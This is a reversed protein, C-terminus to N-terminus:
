RISNEKLKKLKLTDQQPDQKIPYITTKFELKKKRINCTIPNKNIAYKINKNLPESKLIYRRVDGDTVSGLLKSSKNVVFLIQPNIENLKKIADSISSSSLILYKKLDNIM